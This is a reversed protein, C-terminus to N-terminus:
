QAREKSGVWFYTGNGLWDNQNSSKGLSESGALVQEIVQQEGGHFCVLPGLAFGALAELEATHVLWIGKKLLL